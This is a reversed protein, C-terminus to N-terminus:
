QNVRDDSLNIFSKKGSDFIYKFITKVIQQNLESIIITSTKSYYEIESLFPNPGLNLSVKLNHALNYKLESKKFCEIDIDYKVDKFYEVFDHNM